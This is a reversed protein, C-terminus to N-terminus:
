TIATIIGGSITISTISTYTNDAVAVASPGTPGIEGQPGTPGEPGTEGQPGTPGEPGTEGQPGTPGEPGTEGQQGTPGIEGQQGTPGIEGQPGTPGIEGQPGTPGEPGTEGQPGTPGEPGTISEGAPGTPGVEGQPGTEGIGTPGTEGRPIGFDFIISTGVVTAMATADSGPDLTTTTGVSADDLGTPGTEGQPGTPGEPGTEGSAGAPGEPGDPGTPGAEGIPIGFEFSLVGDILSVAATADEGPELTTTSAVEADTAAAVRTVNIAIGNPTETLRVNEGALPRQERLRRHLDNLTDGRVLYTKAPDFNTV